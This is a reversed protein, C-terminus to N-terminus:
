RKGRAPNPLEDPNDASPPLAAALVTGLEEIAALLARAPDVASASAELTRLAANWSGAPVARTIGRDPLVVVARELLSAYILIGTRARTTWVEEDHFAAAAAGQVQEARRAPRTLARRLGPLASSVWAGAGFLLAVDILVWLEAHQVPGYLMAALGLFAAGLGVGIDVDRYSGSRPEVSVVLEATTKEEVEAVTHTLTEFYKDDFATM